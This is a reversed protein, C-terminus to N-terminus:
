CVVSLFYSSIFFDLGWNKGMKKCFGGQSERIKMDHLPPCTCVQKDMEFTEKYSVSPKYLFFYYNKRM